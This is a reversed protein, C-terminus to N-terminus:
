ANPAHPSFFIYPLTVTPVIRLVKMMAASPVTSRIIPFTSVLFWVVCIRPYDQRCSKEQFPMQIIINDPRDITTFCTQSCVIKDRYYQDSLKIKPFIIDVTAYISM